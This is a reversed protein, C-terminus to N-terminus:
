LDPVLTRNLLDRSKFLGTQICKLGNLRNVSSKWIPPSKFKDFDEM